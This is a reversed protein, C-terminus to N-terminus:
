FRLCAVWSLHESARAGHAKPYTAPHLTSSPGWDARLLLLSMLPTTLTNKLTFGSHTGRKRAWAAHHPFVLYYYVVHRDPYRTLAM